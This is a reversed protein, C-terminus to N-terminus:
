LLGDYYSEGSYQKEIQNLQRNFKKEELTKYTDPHMKKSQKWAPINKRAEILEQETMTEIM